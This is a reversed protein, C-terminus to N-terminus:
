QHFELFTTLTQVDSTEFDLPEEGNDRVARVLFAKVPSCGIDFVAM